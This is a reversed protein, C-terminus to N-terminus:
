NIQSVVTYIQEVKSVINAIEDAYNFKYLLEHNDNEEIIQLGNKILVDKIEFIKTKKWIFVGIKWGDIGLYIDLNCGCDLVIYECQLLDNEKYSKFKNKISSNNEFTNKLEKLKNEINDKAVNIISYFKDIDQKRSKIWENIELEMIKDVGTKELNSIFENLFIIWKNSSNCERILPIIYSFLESYTINIFQSHTSIENEENLSLVIKISKKNLKNLTNAYDNLDNYVSAYIKNEIGIVIDNNQLVIDLRNNNITQYERFITVDTTNVNSYNMHTKTSYIKIFANIFLDKLGHEEQPNLYFALINSCVNEYHPYGSIEMFTKEKKPIKNYIENVEQFFKEFSNKEM